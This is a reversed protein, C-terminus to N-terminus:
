PQTKKKGAPKGAIQQKEKKRQRNGRFPCDSPPKEKQHPTKESSEPPSSQQPERQFDPPLVTVIARKKLNDV